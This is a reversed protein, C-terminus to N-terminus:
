LNESGNCAYVVLLWWLYHIPMVGTKWLAIKEFVEILLFHHSTPNCINDADATVWLILRLLQRGHRPHLQRPPPSTRSAGSRMASVGGNGDRVQTEGSQCVRM